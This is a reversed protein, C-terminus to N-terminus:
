AGDAVVEGDRVDGLALRLEASGRALSEAPNYNYLYALRCNSDGLSLNLMLKGLWVLAAVTGGVHLSVPDDARVVGGTQSDAPGLSCYPLHERPYGADDQEITTYNPNGEPLRPRYHIEGVELRFGLSAELRSASAPWLVVQQIAGAGPALHIRLPSRQESLVYSLMALGLARYGARGATVSASDISIAEGGPRRAGPEAVVAGTHFEGPVPLSAATFRIKKPVGDSSEPVSFQRSWDLLEM